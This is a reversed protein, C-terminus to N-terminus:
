APLGERECAARVAAEQRRRLTDSLHIPYGARGDLALLDKPLSDIERRHRTRSAELSPRSVVAGHEMVPALLPEWDPGPEPEDRAALLDETFIGGANTHRWVQKAGVLTQKDTSLKLCAQGDYEVLKYAMDLYPSDAATGLRTGVGYIDIPAGVRTLEALDFEDLGGSAVIRVKTLGADDLQQRVRGSLDALDGSDLRVALLSKGEDELERALAIAHDAGRMTDYTDILLTVPGPFTNAFSRFADLEGAFTQVFSHAVTGAVPIGYRQGAMVNSTSAFGALYAARAVALGADISPTRRLGFDVLAKGPAAAVCRAAKTAVLTPFHLANLLVTEALQAEILPSQVEILPEGAFVVRGEPVAWVDGTFRVGALFDLFDPRIQDLTRLYAIAEADFRLRQLRDLAEDLGATVLFSRNEPLTRAFLSFTAPGNMGLAAYSAGM